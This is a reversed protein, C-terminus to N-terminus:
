TGRGIATRIMNLHKRYLSTAMQYAAANESVKMMEDEIDVTNGNRGIPGDQEVTVPRLDADSVSSGAQGGASALQTVGTGPLHAEDTRELTIPKTRAKLMARFRTDKLDKARYDPTDSNAINQSLIQQRKGLWTIRRSLTSFLSIQSFDM